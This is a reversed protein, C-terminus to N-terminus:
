EGDSRGAGSEGSCSGEVVAVASTVVVGDCGGRESGVGSALVAVLEDVVDAGDGCGDRYDLRDEVM